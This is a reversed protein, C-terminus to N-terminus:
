ASSCAIASTEDFFAPQIAGRSRLNRTSFHPSARSDRSTRTRTAKRKSSISRTLSRPYSSIAEMRRLLVYPQGAGRNAVDTIRLGYMAVDRSVADAASLRARSFATLRALQSAILARQREILDESGDDIESKQKARAGTDMGLNTVTPPCLDLNDKM